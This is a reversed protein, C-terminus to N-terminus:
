IRLGSSSHYRLLDTLKDRNQNDEHIGLKLNKSFEEYFKAYDEKNEIIDSFMDICKKVLNKRIV